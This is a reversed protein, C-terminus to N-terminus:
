PRHEAQPRIRRTALAGDDLQVARPQVRADCVALRADSVPRPSIGVFVARIACVVHLRQGVCDLISSPV